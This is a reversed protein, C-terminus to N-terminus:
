MRVPSISLVCIGTFEHRDPLLIDWTYSCYTCLAQPQVMNLMNSFNQPPWLLWTLSHLSGIPVHHVKARTVDTKKYSLDAKGSSPGGGEGLSESSHIGSKKQHKNM